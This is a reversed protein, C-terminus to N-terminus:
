TIDHAIHLSRKIKGSRDFIPTVSILFDGGLRDEHVETTHPKADKNMMLHPCSKPMCTTGHVCQYCYRGVADEIAIGLKDAMAKNARLIRNQDDLITILDPIANFTEIWDQTEKRDTIDDFVAIAGIIEKKDDLIPAASSNVAVYRGDASRLILEENKVTEGKSLARRLPVDSSRQLKNGLGSLDLGEKVPDLGFLNLARDNVYIIKEDPKQVIMVGSPIASFAASSISINNIDMLIPVIYLGAHHTLPTFM